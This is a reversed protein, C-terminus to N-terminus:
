FGLQTRFLVVNESPRAGTANGDFVTREVTAYVKVAQNPYWNAGITFSRAERSAGASALGASFVAQDVTLAAYRALLQLAGWHGLAPDFNNKPRVMGYSAADGTVLFSGTTEWAHNTVDTTATGRLISQASRMYEAFGGFSKYFYFVAPSVRTRTGNATVGSAYSFYTQQVSTKFSPLAGIQNGTSGGIQFGLGSLPAAPTKTSRFPQVVVRAALDKSSNTDLETTSSAGDPVGNFVGAAYFVKNGAIDGQVQFGIDRNPVLSTALAREPFLVFADGELLEYGVPTKDKGSRIRFKPSFRIDFYADQVVTTGNGFDPMVKFDFYKAVRGSVTPRIKRITFTDTIPSPDDLSFRGDTQAVMGFVLRYDGNASQVFFGDQFGVMPLTPPPAAPAAGQASARPALAIVGVVVAMAVIFRSRM